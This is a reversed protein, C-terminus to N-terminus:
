LWGLEGAAIGAVELLRDLAPARGYRRALLGVEFTAPPALPRWCLGAPLGVTTSEGVIAVTGGRALPAHSLDFSVPREQVRAEVGRERCLGLVADYHGPNAERPHLLLDRDAIQAVEITAREALGDDRALLVGQRERRILRTELGIVQPPCRLIGLDVSGEAVAVVIESTPRVATTIAVEPLHAAVADLLQPATEYGASAGYAVIVSGHEGAAFSRVSRWLEDSAALLGPGRELLFRGAETLAFSHTTRELLQVGLEQELLRVQRSLAPQAVHLREAARTFNREQAVALFYRLRRLGPV